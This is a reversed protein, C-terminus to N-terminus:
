HLTGLGPERKSRLPTVMGDAEGGHTTLSGLLLWPGPENRKEATSRELHGTFSYSVGHVTRTTWQLASGNSRTTAFPLTVPAAHPDPDPHDSMYGHLQGDEFYVTITGARKNWPYQGEADPGLDTHGTAVTPIPVADPQAATRQHLAPANQPPLAPTGQPFLAFASMLLFPFM